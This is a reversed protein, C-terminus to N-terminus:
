AVFKKLIIGAILSFFPLGVSLPAAFISADNEMKPFSRFGFRAKPSTQKLRNSNEDFIGESRIFQSIILSM